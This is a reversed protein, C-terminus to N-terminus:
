KAGKAIAADMLPTFNRYIMPGLAWASEMWQRNMQGMLELREPGLKTLALLAEPLRALDTTVFPHDCGGTMLRINDACLDDCNNVTVCGLALGQLSNYHYSGTVCEDIAIHCTSKKVLCEMLPRQQIIEAEVRPLGPEGQGAVRELIAAITADAGKDDWDRQSVNSPSYAIRIRDKPKEGPQFWQSAFPILEPVPVCGPYLRTQYEGLVAWPWGDKEAQRNVHRAIPQSVYVVLTPREQPYWDQIYPVGQYCFILDASNLWERAEANPPVDYDSPMSRGDGYGRPCISVCEHGAEKFAESYAWCVGAIPTISVHAIRM